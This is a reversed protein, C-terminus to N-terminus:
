IALHVVSRSWRLAGYFAGIITSHTCTVKQTESELKDLSVRRKPLYGDKGHRVELRSRLEKKAVVNCGLFRMEVKVRACVSTM